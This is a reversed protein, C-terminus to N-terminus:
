EDLNEAMQSVNGLVRYVVRRKTEIFEAKNLNQM